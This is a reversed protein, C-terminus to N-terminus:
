TTHVRELDLMYNLGMGRQNIRLNYWCLVYDNYNYIYTNQLLCIFQTIPLVLQFYSAYQEHYNCHIYLCLIVDPAMKRATCLKKISIKM